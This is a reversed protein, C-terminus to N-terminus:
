SYLNNLSTSLDLALKQLSWNYSYPSNLFEKINRRFKDIISPPCDILYQCLEDINFFQQSNIFCTSPILANINNCGSYVPISGCYLADFIKETLYNDYKNTNEYTISFVSRRLISKKCEISGQWSPFYVKKSISPLRSSLYRGIKTPWAKRNAWGYGYLEFSSPSNKEFWRIIKARERYLCHHDFLINSSKNAAIMSIRIDRKEVVGDAIGSYYYPIFAKQVCPDSLMEKQWTFIKSYQSLLSPNSNNPYIDPNELLLCVKPLSSNSKQANLHLEVNPQVNYKEKFDILNINYRRLCERLKIWKLSLDCSYRQLVPTPDTSNYVFLTNM